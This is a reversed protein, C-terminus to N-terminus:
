PSHTEPLPHPALVAGGWGTPEPQLPHLVGCHPCRADGAQIDLRSFRQRQNPGPCDM